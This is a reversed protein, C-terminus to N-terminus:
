EALQPAKIWRAISKLGQPIIIPHCHLQGLLGHYNVPGWLKDRVVIQTSPHYLKDGITM